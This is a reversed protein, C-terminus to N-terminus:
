ALVALLQLVVAFVSPVLAFHTEATPLLLSTLAKFAAFIMARLILVATLADEIVAVLGASADRAVKFIAALAHCLFAPLGAGRM